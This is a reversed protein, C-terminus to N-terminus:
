NSPATLVHDRVAREFEEVVAAELGTLKEDAVTLRNAKLHAEDRLRIFHTIFRLGTEGRQLQGLLVYDANLGQALSKLNRINRPQRLVAANGIVAIRAPNVKTLREVVADSFNTVPRDYEAQGTENDFVSVAIVVRTQQPPPPSFTEVLMGVAAALMAFTLPITVWRNFTAAEPRRVESADPPVDVPAIFKVGRKPVTQVFRPNDGSDGLAARIQSLCYAIGRDFDVHTDAGWVADRLEERSVIEGAKSLLLALAKAPQPELAVVRGNKRLEGSDGDFEFVGFQHMM